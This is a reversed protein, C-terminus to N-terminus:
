MEDLRLLRVIADDGLLEERQEGAILLQFISNILLLNDVTMGELMSPNQLCTSLTVKVVASYRCHFVTILHVLAM